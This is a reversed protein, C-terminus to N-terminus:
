LTCLIECISQRLDTNVAFYFEDMLDGPSSGDDLTETSPIILTHAMAVIESMAANNHKSISAHYDRTSTGWNQESFALASSSEKGSVKNLKLPTKATARMGHTSMQDDVQVEGRQFLWIARELAATCLSLAGRVAYKKMANTGLGPIDPCGICPRLHAHAFLQLIFHSRYAHALNTADLDQYLFSLPGDILENCTQRVAAASRADDDPDSALFHAILAIATSGFNSRWLGLRRTALVFTPTGPRVAHSDFDSVLSTTIIRLATMLELDPIAWPDAFSGAWMLLAPLMQKSWRRDEQLEEPLNANVFHICGCTTSNTGTSLPRDSTSSALALERSEQTM